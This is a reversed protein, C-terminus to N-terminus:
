GYALVDAGDGLEEPVDVARLDAARADDVYGGAVAAFGVAAHSGREWVVRDDSRRLIRARRRDTEVRPRLIRAFNTFGRRLITNSISRIHAHPILRYNRRSRNARSLSRTPTRLNTRTTRRRSNRRARHNQNRTPQQKTNSKNTTTESFNYHRKRQQIHWIADDRDSHCQLSHHMDSLISACGACVLAQKLSLRFIHFVAISM